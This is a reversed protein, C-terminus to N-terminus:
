PLDMALPLLGTLRDVGNVAPQPGAVKARHLQGKGGAMISIGLGIGPFAGGNEPGPPLKQAMLGLHGLDPVIDGAVQGAPWDQYHAPGVSGQSAKVIDATM